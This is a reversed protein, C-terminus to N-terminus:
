KKRTDKDSLRWDFASKNIPLPFNEGHEEESENKQPGTRWKIMEEEMKIRIKELRDRINDDNPDLILARSYYSAAERLKGLKEYSLGLYLYLSASEEKEAIASKFYNIADDIRGNSFLLVGMQYLVKPHKRNIKMANQLYKFANDIDQVTISLLGLRYNTNFNKDNIRLSAMYLTKADEWKKDSELRMATNYYYEEKYSLIFDLYERFRTNYETYKKLQFLYQTENEYNDTSEAYETKKILTYIDSDRKLHNEMYTKQQKNEDNSNLVELIRNNKETYSLFFSENLKLKEPKDIFYCAGTQTGTDETILYDIDTTLLHTFLHYENYFLLKLEEKEELFQTIRKYKESNLEMSLKSNSSAVTLINSFLYINYFRFNEKLNKLADIFFEKRINNIYYTQVFVGKEKLKNRLLHYYESTFRFRNRNQDLVNPIDVISDYKEEKKRVYFLLDEAEAIYSSNGSVPLRNYDVLEEPIIDLAAAGKFYGIVPNKFFKQNSDIFLVRSKGDPLYLSIPVLSRKMNRIISDSLEFVPQANLTVMGRNKIFHANFNTRSLTDFNVSKKVYIDNALRINFYEHSFIVSIILILSLLVYLLKKYGDIKRSLISLGPIIINLLAILYLLGFYLFYTFKIFSLTILVPAPLIFLSFDIISFRECHDFKNLVNTLTHTLSYGFIVIAPLVFLMGYYLPIGKHFHNLLHVFPVFFVPFLIETNIHSLKGKILVGIILGIFLGTIVVTIFALKVYFSAGYCKLVTEMGLYIYIITYSFNLYTFILSDRTENGSEGEEEEEPFHQAFQLEPNYQLKVMFLSPTLFLVFLSIFLSFREWGFPIAGYFRLTSLSIGAAVGILIAGVFNVTGQKDDLFTGCSIKLFYNIKIGAAFGTIGIFLPLSLTWSNFFFLLTSTGEPVLSNRFIYLLSLLIFISESSIYIARFRGSSTFLLRGSLNGAFIGTLLSIFVVKIVPFYFFYYVLDLVLDSFIYGSILFTLFGNIYIIRRQLIDSYSFEKLNSM